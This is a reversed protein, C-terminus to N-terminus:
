SVRDRLRKLTLELDVILAETTNDLQDIGRHLQNYDAQEPEQGEEVMKEIRATWEMLNQLSTEAHSDLHSVETRGVDLGRLFAGIERRRGRVRELVGSFTRRAQARSPLLPDIVGSAFRQTAAALLRKIDEALPESESLGRKALVEQLGEHGVAHEAAVCGRFLYLTEDATQSGGPLLLEGPTYTKGDRRGGGGRRAPKKTAAGATRGEQHHTAASVPAGPRGAPSAAPAKSKVKTEPAASRGAPKPKATPRNAAARPKSHSASAAKKAVAAAPKKTKKASSM